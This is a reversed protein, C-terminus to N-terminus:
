CFLVPEFLFVRLHIAASRREAPLRLISLVPLFCMNYIRPELLDSMIPYIDSYRFVNSVVKDYPGGVCRGWAQIAIFVRILPPPTHATSELTRWGTDGRKAIPNYLFGREKHIISSKSYIEVCPM